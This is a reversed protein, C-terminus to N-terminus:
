SYASDEFILPEGTGLLTKLSCLVPMWGKSIEKYTKTEGEFNDHILTLICVEGMPKIEWTVRSPNEEAREPDYKVSWSTPLILRWCKM